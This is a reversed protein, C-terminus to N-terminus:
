IHAYGNKEIGDLIEMGGSLVLSGQSLVHVFDPKLLRAMAPYHTVIVIAMEANQKRMRALARIIIMVADTDLGSDLEDLFALTPRFFLLQLLECRKREGGSFGENLSRDLFAHDLNVFSCLERMEQESKEAQETKGTCAYRMEKLLTRVSLGPVAPPQQLTTFIGLRVRADTTMSLLSAGKFLIDGHTIQYQPNGLVSMLLSSKGSGNPGMIVHMSGPMINLSINNLVRKEDAAVSINKIHLM